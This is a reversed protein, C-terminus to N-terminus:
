RLADEGYVLRDAFEAHTAHEDACEYRSSMPDNRFTARLECGRRPCQISAPIFGATYLFRYADDTLSFEKRPNELSAPPMVPHGEAELNAMLCLLRLEMVKEAARMLPEERPSMTHDGGPYAHGACVDPEDEYSFNDSTLYDRPDAELAAIADETTGAFNELVNEAGLEELLRILYSKPLAFKKIM